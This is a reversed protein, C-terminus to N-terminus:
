LEQRLVHAVRHEENDALRINIHRHHPHRDINDNRSPAFIRARLLAELAM